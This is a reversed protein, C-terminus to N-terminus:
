KTRCFSIGQNSTGINTTTERQNKEKRMAIKFSIGELPRLSFKSFDIKEKESENLANIYGSSLSIIFSKNVIPKHELYFFSHM